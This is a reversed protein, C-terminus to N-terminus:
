RKKRCFQATNKIEEKHAYNKALDLDLVDRALLKKRAKKEKKRKKGGWNNRKQVLFLKASIFTTRHSTIM